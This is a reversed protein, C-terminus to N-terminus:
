PVQTVGIAAEEEEQIIIRPTVMMMLSSSSKGIAVNNFLRNLYPIKNLMPVGNEYRAERMRKIGGLLVTGGDPVSVTTTVTQFAFTPLQVTTGSRMITQEEDKKEQGPGQSEKSSNKTTSESGEFTFENVEGIQSFFPILTLRVFRRDNSVVAQVSLSTGENLVAIVPQQAAAFDGVVPIVSIVFPTQQTDSVFAQQGNFMTVKPAQLVNSRQDSQVANIFFYAEIDSLIAFGVNAGGPALGNALTVGGIASSIAGSAQELSSQTFPIDLDSSFVGPASMGVTVSRGKLDRDSVDRAPNGSGVDLSGATYSTSQDQPRGFIQFPMDINDNIDMDFDIGVQEYFADNLTIFRVEITVQLDQLKRLQNLLNEIEEHGRVDHTIVLSLTTDHKKIFGVTGGNDQWDSPRITSTILEILSDFDPRVGGGLGGPGAFMQGQSMGTQPPGGGSNFPVNVQGLVGPSPNAASNAAIMSVPANSALGGGGLISAQADALAGALGMRNTPVFNPIPIVLDGVPYTVTYVEESRMRESTIKLVEDRIVYTLHHESLILRLASKLSIESSLDISVPTSSDVGEAALGRQDVYIPVGTMASLKEFVQTLTAKEFKLSIPTKLRQEIELEKPSRRAADTLSPLRRTKLENWNKPFQMPQNDDLNPIASRDVAAFADVTGAEALSRIESNNFMRRLSKSQAALQVAIPENPAIESARKALVEAEAFRQQDILVNYEEVLQALREQGALKAQQERDLTQQVDRNRQALEIKPRNAEVYQRLEALNRDVRRLLIDKTQGSLTSKEVLVRAQQLVAEAQAPDADRVQKSQGELKGVDAMIQRTLLEQAQATQDILTTRDPKGPAIPEEVAVLSLRDQQRQREAPSLTESTAAPVNRTQDNAPDYIAQATPFSGAPTTVAAAPEVNGATTVKNRRRLKEIEMLVLWARDDQPGFEKDSVNLGDAQRAFAEAQQLEGAILARRAQKVLDLVQQKAMVNGVTSPAPTGAVDPPTTLSPGGTVNTPMAPAGALPTEHALLRVDSQQPGTAPLPIIKAESQPGAFAASPPTSPMPSASAATVPFAGPTQPAGLSDNAPPTTMLPRAFPTQGGNDYRAPPLASGSASLGGNGIPNSAQPIPYTATPSTPPVAYPSAPQAAAAPAPSAAPAGTSAPTPVPAGNIAAVGRRAERLRELDRRAKKPTDGMHFLGFEVKSSEARGILSDATELNGDAMAQRSRTLLEVVQDRAADAAPAQAVVATLAAATMGDIAYVQSGGTLGLAGLSLTALIRRSM